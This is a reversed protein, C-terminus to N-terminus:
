RLRLMVAIALGALLLWCLWYLAVAWRPEPDNARKHVRRLDFMGWGHVVIGVVLIVLALPRLANHLYVGIAVGLILAGTGSTLEAVKVRTM